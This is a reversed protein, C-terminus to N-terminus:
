PGPPQMSEQAWTLLGSILYGGGLVKMTGYLWPALDFLASLGLAVGLCWLLNATLIGTVVAAAPRFSGRIAAQAVVVFNPGPSMAALLDVVLLSLLLPLYTM